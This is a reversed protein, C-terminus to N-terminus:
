GELAQDPEGSRQCFRSVLEMLQLLDVPKTVLVSPPIGAAAALEPVASVVVVPIGALQRNNRLEQVLDAGSLRPMMFDTVILAPRHGARLHELAAIGDPAWTVEYGEARVFECVTEGIDCDDEVLLLHGTLRSPGVTVDGDDESSGGTGDAGQEFM